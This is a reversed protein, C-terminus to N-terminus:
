EPCATSALYIRLARLMQALRGHTGSAGSASAPRTISQREVQLRSAPWALSKSAAREMSASCRTPSISFTLDIKPADTRTPVLYEAFNDNIPYGNRPDCVSHERLGMGVGM